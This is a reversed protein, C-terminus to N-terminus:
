ENNEGNFQNFFKEPDETSYSSISNFNDKWKRIENKNWSVMGSIFEKKDMSLDEVIVLKDDFIMFDKQMHPEVDDLKICEIKDIIEDHKNIIIRVNPDSLEEPFLMFIRHINVGREKAEINSKFLKDYSIDNWQGTAIHTTYMNKECEKVCEMIFGTLRYPNNISMTGKSLEELYKTTEHILESGKRQVIRETHRDIQAWLKVVKLYKKHESTQELNALTIHNKLIFTSITLLTGIILVTATIDADKIFVHVSLSLILGLLFEGLIFLNVKDLDQLRDITSMSM